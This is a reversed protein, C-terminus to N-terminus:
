VSEVLSLKEKQDDTQVVSTFVVNQLVKAAEVKKDFAIFVRAAKMSCELEVIAAGQYKEYHMIAEQYKEAIEEFSLISKGLNKYEVPDLYPPLSKSQSAHQITEAELMNEVLRARYPRANDDQFVFSDGIAGAYPIVHPRLIEDAYRRGTLTGNSHYAPRYM